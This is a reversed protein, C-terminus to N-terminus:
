RAAVHLATSDDPLWAFLIPSPRRGRFHHCASRRQHAAASGRAGRGRGGRDGSAARGSGAAPDPTLGEGWGDRCLALSLASTLQVRWSVLNVICAVVRSSFVSHLIEAGFGRGFVWGLSSHYPIKLVREKMFTGRSRRKLLLFDTVSDSGM